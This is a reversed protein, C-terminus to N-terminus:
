LKRWDPAAKEDRRGIPSSSLPLSTFPPLSPFTRIDLAPIPRCSFPPPLITLASQSAPSRRMSVSPWLLRPKRLSAATAFSPPGPQLACARGPRRITNKEGAGPAM